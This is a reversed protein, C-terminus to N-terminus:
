NSAVKDEIEIGRAPLSTPLQGKIKNMAPNQHKACLLCQMLIQQTLPYPEVSGLMLLADPRFYSLVPAAPYHQAKTPPQAPHVRVGRGINLNWSLM